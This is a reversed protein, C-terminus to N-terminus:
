KQEVLKDKGWLTFLFLDGLSPFSSVTKQFERQQRKNLRINDNNKFAKMVEDFDYGLGYLEMAVSMVSDNDGFHSAVKEVINKEAEGRKMISGGSATTPEVYTKQKALFNNLNKNDSVPFAVTAARAPSLNQTSILKDQFGELDNAEKFPRRIENLSSTIKSPSGNWFSQRGTTELNLNAKGLNKAVETWKKAAQQPSMGKKVDQIAEDRLRKLQDGSLDKDYGTLVIDNFLRDSVNKEVGEQLKSEEIWANRKNILSQRELEAEQIAEEKTLNPRGSMIESARVDREQKTLPLIPTLAAMYPEPTTVSQTEQSKAIEEQFPTTGQAGSVISPTQNTPSIGLQRSKDVSEAAAHLDERGRLDKLLPALTYIMEPTVGPISYLDTAQEVATKGSKDKNFQELGQKLRYRNAEQPVSEALSEGLAKGVKGWINGRAQPVIQAM